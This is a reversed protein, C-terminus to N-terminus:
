GNKKQQTLDIKKSENLFYYGILGGSVLILLVSFFVIYNVKLRYNIRNM